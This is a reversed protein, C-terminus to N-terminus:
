SIERMADYGQYTVSGGVGTVAFTISFPIPSAFVEAHSGVLPLTIARYTYGGPAGEPIGLFTVTQGACGSFYIIVGTASSLNITPGAAPNAVVLARAESLRRNKSPM